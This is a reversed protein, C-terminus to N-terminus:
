ERDLGLELYPSEPITRILTVYPWFSSLDMAGKSRSLILPAASSIGNIVKFLYNQTLVYHKSKLSRVQPIGILILDIM